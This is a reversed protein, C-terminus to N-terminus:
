EKCFSSSASVLWAQRGHVAGRFVQRRLPDGGHHPHIQDAHLLAHTTPAMEPIPHALTALIVILVPKNLAEIFASESTNVNEAEFVFDWLVILPIYVMGALRHTWVFVNNRLWEVHHFRQSARAWQIPDTVALVLTLAINVLRIPEM